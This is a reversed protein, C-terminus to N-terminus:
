PNDKVQYYLLGDRVAQCLLERESLSHLLKVAANPHIRLGNAIDRLTCPRRRLLVLIEEATREQGPITSHKRYPAIVEASGFFDRIRNMEPDPVKKAWGEAPPRVATNLQIRDPAISEAIRKIRALAPPTTNVGDILFVELWIEGAYANRFRVLGEVVEGFELAPHPRNIKHFLFQDGADLSPIVLDAEELDARVTEDWLLSGNTLVAVPIRSKRKIDRILWGIESHLTPEGSGSLTIYDPQEGEDLKRCLQEVIESAPVYSKRAITQRTTRGLQCYICDYSCTKFTVLDIGLSRGLRRSPVPGFVHVRDMGM